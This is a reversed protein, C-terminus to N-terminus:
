KEKEKWIEAGLSELKSEMQEYGRELHYIRAVETKGKAILGVLVLAASARLDSAMVPAGSLRGVGKVIASAGELVIQAGMRAMESVHMFRDLILELSMNNLESNQITDGSNKGTERLPRLIIERRQKEISGEAGKTCNGRLIEEPVDEDCSVSIGTPVHTVRIARTRRPGGSIVEFKFVSETLQAPGTETKRFGEKYGCSQCLHSEHIRGEVADTIHISAKRKQCVQCRM